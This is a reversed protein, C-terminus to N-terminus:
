PNYTESILDELDKSVRAIDKYNETKNAVFSSYLVFLNAIEINGKMSSLDGNIFDTNKTIWPM